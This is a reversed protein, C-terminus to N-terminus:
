IELGAHDRLVEVVWDPNLGLWDCLTVHNRERFFQLAQRKLLEARVRSYYSTPQTMMLDAVVNCLVAMWLKQEPLDIDANRIFLKAILNGKHVSGIRPSEQIIKRKARM